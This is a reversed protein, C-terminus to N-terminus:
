GRGGDGAQGGMQECDKNTNRTHKLSKKSPLCVMNEQSLNQWKKQQVQQAERACTQVCVQFVSLPGSTKSAAILLTSLHNIWPLLPWKSLNECSSENTGEAKNLKKPRVSGYYHHNLINWFFSSKFSIDLRTEFFTM